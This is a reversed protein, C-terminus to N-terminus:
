RRPKREKHTLEPLKSKIDKAVQEFFQPAFISRKGKKEIAKIEKAMQKVYLDLAESIIFAENGFLKNIAMTTFSQGQYM